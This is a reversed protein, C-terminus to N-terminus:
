PMEGLQSLGAKVKAGRKVTIKSTPPLYLDVRSGFRILGLRAGRQVCDGPRVWCVIRRAILGAIQVLGVAEGNETILLLANQENQKSAREQHAAFFNGTRYRIKEIRGSVPFRNVHCNFVSMFISIKLAPGGSFLSEETEEVLLVKGDAPALITREGPPSRREPDRFFSVIFLTLVGSVAWAISLDLWLFLATLGIGALIFPYGQRALPIRM